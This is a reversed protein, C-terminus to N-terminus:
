SQRAISHATADYENCLSRDLREYSANTLSRPVKRSGNEITFSKNHWLASTVALFTQRCIAIYEM